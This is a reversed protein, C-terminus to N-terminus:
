GALNTQVRNIKQYPAEKILETKYAAVKAKPTRKRNWTLGVLALLDIVFKTPNLQQSIGYESTAYDEPFAHHYNHWGEGLSFFSARLSDAPAITRLYERRGYWHALSNIVWTRHYIQVIRYGVFYGMALMTDNTLYVGMKYPFYIAIFLVLLLYYDQNVKVIPDDRLDKVPITKGIESVEKRKAILLWGMHAFFMGRTSDHPDGPKESQKHHLRHDRCWHFISNQFSMTFGCMLFIRVTWHAQYTKHAWLRHAGMTVGNGAFWALAEQCFIVKLVLRWDGFLNRWVFLIIKWFGFVALLHLMIMLFLIHWKIKFKLGKATESKSVWYKGQWSPFKDAARCTIFQIINRHKYKRTAGRGPLPAM